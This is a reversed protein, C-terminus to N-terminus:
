EHSLFSCVICNVNACSLVITTAAVRAALSGALSGALRVKQLQGRIRGLTRLNRALEAPERLGVILGVAPRVAQGSGAAYLRVRTLIAATKVIM